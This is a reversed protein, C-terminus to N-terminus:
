KHLKKYTYYSIFSVVLSIPITNFSQKSIQNIVVASTVPADLMPSLFAVMGIYMINEIPMSMPLITQLSNLYKHSLLNSYLNGLGSGITMSPIVIGGSLGAGLSIICNIIKGGVNKYNFSESTNSPTNTNVGSNLRANKFGENIVTESTGTIFLGCTQIMFALLIGFLVVIFDKYKFKKLNNYLSIFSTFFLFCVVGIIASFIGIYLLNTLKYYDFHVVGINLIPIRSKFLSHVFLVIFLLLMVNPTYLISSHNIIMKEFVFIISSILSTFTADFGIAYGTYILLETNIDVLNLFRKFKFYLYLLLSISLYIMVGESGLGSGSISTLLSFMIVALITLEGIFPNPKNNEDKGDKGSNVSLLMKKIYSNYYGDSLEFLSCRSALFFLVTVYIYLLWSNNKMFTEINKESIEFVRDYIDRYYSNFKTIILIAVILFVATKIM